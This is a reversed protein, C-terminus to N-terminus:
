WEDDPFEPLDEDLISDTIVDVDSPIEIIDFEPKTYINM